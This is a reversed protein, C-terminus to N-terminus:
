AKLCALPVIHVGDKRTYAANTGTLVMLFSPKGQVKDDIKKALKILHKAAEDFALSGLKVEILAWKGNKLELVADAELSTKDRYHFVEGELADMYVRLDHVCLSEFLLGFTNFDGLLKEPTAGMLAAAISPDCFHRTPTTRIATKSRLRVSWASIDEIVCARTLVDIYDNITTRSLEEGSMDAAITSFNAESSINRAYSRLLHRMWTKNRTKDDMQEIDSEILEDIYDRAMQLAIKQNLETVAAPWGGRCIAFAIDNIDFNALAAVEDQGEFLAKLSIAGSSEGTEFLSMTRMKMRTIRGVGSHQPKTEDKPTSSGTLIFQGRKKNRDIYYRVADWLQPAVQWEDILRPTEGELLLSPKTNALAILNPGEDPDQMFLMSKAAREATSTKGCWKPGKLQVAGASKLKEQLIADAVRPLYDNHTTNKSSTAEDHMNKYSRKTIGNIFLSANTKAKKIIKM